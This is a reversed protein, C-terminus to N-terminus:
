RWGFDIPTIRVRAKDSTPIESPKGIMGVTAAVGDIGVSEDERLKLGTREIVKIGNLWVNVAGDNVGPANLVLEQELTVWRGRELRVAGPRSMILRGMDSVAKSQAMIQVDGDKTWRTRLAFGDESTLESRDPTPGGFMGPLMSPLPADFDDPLYVSYRMCGSRARHSGNPRWPFHVGVASEPDTSDARDLRVELVRPMPAREVNVIRVNHMLGQEERGAQAQLEIMSLPLGDSSQLAFRVATVYGDMCGVPTENFYKYSIGLYGLLVAAAVGAGFLVIHDASTKKKAM